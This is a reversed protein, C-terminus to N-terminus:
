EIGQSWLADFLMAQTSAIDQDQIVIGVPMKKNLSIIAVKNGYIFNANHIKYESPLFRTHCLEKEDRQKLAETEPSRCTLLQMRLFRTYRQEIFDNFEEGLIQEVDDVSMLSRIHQKTELIDNLIHWIGATGNYARTTPKVGTEHRLAHLEPLIEKLATERERLLILIREPNEAIWHKRRRKAYAYMMGKEVLANIILQVSTRPIKVKEAIETITAEGLQLSALYVKIEKPTYGLKQIIQTIHM